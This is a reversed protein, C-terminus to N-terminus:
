ATEAQLFSILTYYPYACVVKFGEHVASAKFIHYVTGCPISSVNILYQHLDDYVTSKTSIATFYWFRAKGEAKQLTLTFAPNMFKAAKQYFSSMYLM